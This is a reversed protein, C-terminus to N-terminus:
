SQELVSSGFINWISFFFFLCAFSFYKPTSAILNELNFYSRQTYNSLFPFPLESYFLLEENRHM